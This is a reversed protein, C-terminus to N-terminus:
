PRGEGVLGNHSAALPRGTGAKMVAATAPVRARRGATVSLTGACGLFALVAAVNAVGAWRWAPEVGVGDGVIIRALLSTHLLALPGYLVPHYPLPRRLVAPLIVPVHVFIMSLVFGLFVAHLTADYRAGDGAPGAGAWLLGAVALWGYGTLLGVAAYRPLGSGHVTRRAVDFVALWAAQALLAFGLLHTGARPWVATATAAVPLAAVAALFWREAHAPLLAVHALERREGAITAVVFVVMWPVTDGIPFGALWLLTAAYWGFAGSAQALPAVSQQRAWLARYVGLLVVSAVMMAAKGVWGPGAALLLLAGVGSCAPALFAWRRGLAVARELAMLTGVFGFVMVPGHVDQVASPPQPVGAGLLLLGAYLGSLLAFGAAFLIPVRWQVPPRAPAASM